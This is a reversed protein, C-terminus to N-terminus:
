LVITVPHYVTRVFEHGFWAVAATCVVFGKVRDEFLM